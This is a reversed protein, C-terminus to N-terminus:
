FNNRGDDITGNAHDRPSEAEPNSNENEKGDYLGEKAGLDDPYGAVATGLGDLTLYQRLSFSTIFKLVAMDRPTLNM